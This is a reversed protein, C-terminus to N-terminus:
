CKRTQKGKEENNGKERNRKEKEKRRAKEENRDIIREGGKKEEKNRKKKKGKRRGKTKTKEVQQVSRTWMRKLLRVLTTKGINQSGVVMIQSRSFSLFCVFLCEQKKNRQKKLENKKQQEKTEKTEIKKKNEQYRLLPKKLKMKSNYEERFFKEDQTIEKLEPFNQFIQENRDWKFFDLKRLLCQSFFSFLAVNNFVNKFGSM